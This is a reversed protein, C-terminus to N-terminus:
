HDNFQLEEEVRFYFEKSPSLSGSPYLVQNSGLEWNIKLFVALTDIILQNREEKLFAFKEANNFLM